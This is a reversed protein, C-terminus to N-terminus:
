ELYFLQGLKVANSSMRNLEKLSAISVKSRRSLNFLTDGTSVIIYKRGAASMKIRSTFASAEERENTSIVSAATKVPTKQQNLVLHSGTEGTQKIIPAIASAGNNEVAPKEPPHRALALKYDDLKKQLKDRNANALKNNTKLLQQLSLVKMNLSQRNDVGKYLSIYYYAMAPNNELFYAHSIGLYASLPASEDKLANLYSSSAKDLDNQLTLCDGYSISIETAPIHNKAAVELADTYSHNANVYDGNACLLEAYDSFLKPDKRELTLAQRYCALAQATNNMKQYAQAQLYYGRYEKPDLNIAATASELAASYNKEAIYKQATQLEPNSAKTITTCYSNAMSM